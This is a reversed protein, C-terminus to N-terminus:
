PLFVLMLSTLLVLVACVALYILVARPKTMTRGQQAVLAAQDQRRRLMGELQDMTPPEAELSNFWLCASRDWKLGDELQWIHLQRRITEASVSPDDMYPIPFITPPIRPPPRLWGVVEKVTPRYCPVENDNDPYPARYVVEGTTSDRVVFDDTM